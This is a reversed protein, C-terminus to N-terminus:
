ISHFRRFLNFCKVIPLMFSTSDPFISLPKPCAELSLLLSINDPIESLTPIYSISLQKLSTFAPGPLVKHLIISPDHKCNPPNELWIYNAFNEPLDALCEILPFYLIKLNKKNLLSSPLVNGNWGHTLGLDLHDTSSFTVSFDQLNVCYFAHFEELAPSCTSSSLSKLSKCGTVKLSRLKQLSFISSDVETMSECHELKLHTLNPSGSM